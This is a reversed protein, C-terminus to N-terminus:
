KVSTVMVGDFLAERRDNMDRECETSNPFYYVIKRISKASEECINVNTSDVVIPARYLSAYWDIGIRNYQVDEDHLDGYAFIIKPINQETANEFVRKLGIPSKAVLIDGSKLAYVHRYFPILFLPIVACAAIMRLRVPKMFSLFEYVLVTCFPIIFIFHKGGFYRYNYKMDLMVMIAVYLVCSAAIFLSTKKRLFILTFLMTYTAYSRWHGEFYVSQLWTLGSEITKHPNIATVANPIYLFPLVLIGIFVTCVGLITANKRTSTDYIGKVIFPALIIYHYV